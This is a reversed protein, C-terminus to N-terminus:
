RVEACLFNPHNPNSSDAPEDASNFRESLRRFRDELQLFVEIIRPDFQTGAAGAILQVCEDHTLPEKYVRKSRLADYVDAVAVIRASLPIQEGALGNPYGEGDWWEHHAAVIERAMQLFNTPGLRSEIDRLCKEGIQTHLQMRQREEQTLLGPKQLISDEVGVKGIDHLASSIGILEIFGPTIRDSFAPHNRLGSALMSSLQSIRELHAGTDPDRSDSLKALGFIVTEQTRVLAQAQRLAGIDASTAAASQETRLRNLLIFLAVGSICTVWVLTIASGTALMSILAGRDVVAVDISRLAALYGDHSPLASAVALRRGGDNRLDGSIPASFQGWKATQRHLALNQVPERRTATADSAEDRLVRGDADLLLLEEGSAASARWRAVVPRWVGDDTQLVALSQRNTAETLKATERELAARVEDAAIRAISSALYLYLFALGVALCGAQTVLIPIILRRATM